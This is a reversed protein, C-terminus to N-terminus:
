IVVVGQNEYTKAVDTLLRLEAVSSPSWSAWSNVVLTQGLYETLEVANGQMDLFNESTTSTKFATAAASSDLDRRESNQQALYV